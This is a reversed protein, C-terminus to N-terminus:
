QRSPKPATSSWYRVHVPGTLFPAHCSAEEGEDTLKSARRMHRLDGRRVFTICNVRPNPREQCLTRKPSGGRINGFPSFSFRGVKGWDRDPPYCIHPTYCSIAASVQHQRVDDFRNQRRVNARRLKNAILKGSAARATPSTLTFFPTQQKQESGTSSAPRSKCASSRSLHRPCDTTAMGHCRSSPVGQRGEKRGRIIRIRRTPDLDHLM